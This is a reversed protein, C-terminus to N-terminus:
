RTIFKNTSNVSTNVASKLLRIYDVPVTMNVGNKYMVIKTDKNYLCYNNWYVPYNNLLYFIKQRTENDYIDITDIICSYKPLFYITNKDIDSWVIYRHHIYGSYAVSYINSDPYTDGYFNIDVGKTIEVLPSPTEIYGNVSVRIFESLAFDPNQIDELTHRCYLFEFQSDNFPLKTTDIDVSIYDSINENYGVFKCALPFPVTGPGIEVISKYNNDKCHTVLKDIVTQNPKWHRVTISNDCPLQKFSKIVEINM